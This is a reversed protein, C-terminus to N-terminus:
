FGGELSASGAVAGCMRVCGRRLAPAEFRGDLEAFTQIYVGDACRRFAVAM